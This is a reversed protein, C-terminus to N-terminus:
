AASEQTRRAARYMSEPIEALRSPHLRKGLGYFECFSMV